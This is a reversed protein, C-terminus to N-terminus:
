RDHDPTFWIYSRKERDDEYWLKELEFWIKRIEDEHELILKKLEEHTALIKRMYAFVRIIAISMEKATDSRLVNAAQLCGHETFAFSSYRNGWHESSSTGFHWRMTRLEEKTLEFMFDIPFRDINRKVQRKLYKTEVDYLEALDKDLIVKQWRLVIIKTQISELPLLM